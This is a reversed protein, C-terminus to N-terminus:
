RLLFIGINITRKDIVGSPLDESSMPRNGPNVREGMREYKADKESACALLSPRSIATYKFEAAQFGGSRPRPRLRFLM